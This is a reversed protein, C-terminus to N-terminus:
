LWGEAKVNVVFTLRVFRIDNFHKKYIYMPSGNYVTEWVGVGEYYIDNRGVNYDVCNLIHDEM